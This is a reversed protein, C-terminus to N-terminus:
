ANKVGYLYATSYQAFNGGTCAVSFANIAATNSWLGAYMMMENGTANDETVTDISFSKNTSGAYNPIYMQFSSFTNATTTSLTNIGQIISDTRNGSSASSGNGYITRATFNSTSGNLSIPAYGAGATSRLSMEIVLDTFTAPISSFSITAAGGSGVTSSAILEFTNAM